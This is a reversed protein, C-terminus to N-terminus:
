LDSFTSNQKKAKKNLNDRKTKEEIIRPLLENQFIFYKDLQKYNVKFIM